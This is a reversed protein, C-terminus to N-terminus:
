LAHCEADALDCILTAIKRLALGGFDGARRAPAALQSRALRQGAAHTVSFALASFASERAPMM